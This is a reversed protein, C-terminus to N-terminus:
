LDDLYNSYRSALCRNTLSRLAWFCAQQDSPDILYRLGSSRDFLVSQYNHTKMTAVLTSMAQFKESYHPDNLWRIIENIGFPTNISSEINKLLASEITKLRNLDNSWSLRQFFARNDHLLIDLLYQDDAGTTQAQDSTSSSASSTPSRNLYFYVHMAYPLGMQILQDPSDIFKTLRNLIRVARPNPEDCSAIYRLLLSLLRRNYLYRRLVSDTAEYSLKSLLIFILGETRRRIEINVTTDGRPTSQKEKEDELHTNEVFETFLSENFDIMM